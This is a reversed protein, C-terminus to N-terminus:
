RVDSDVHYHDMTKVMTKVESLADRSIIKLIEAGFGKALRSAALKWGYVSTFVSSISCSREDWGIM